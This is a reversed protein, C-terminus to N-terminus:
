RRRANEFVIVAGTSVILAALAAMLISRKRNPLIPKVYAAPEVVSIILREEPKLQLQQQQDSIRNMLVQAAATSIDMSKRADSHRVNIVLIQTKEIATANISNMVELASVGPVMAAVGEATSYSMVLQAYTPVLQQLKSVNTIGSPLGITQPQDVLLKVTSDYKPEAGSTTFFAIGTVVLVIALVFVARPVLFKIVTM